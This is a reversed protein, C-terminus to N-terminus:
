EPFDGALSSAITDWVKDSELGLKWAACGALQNDWMVKLKYRLSTEEERWIQVRDDGVKLQVYYQKM